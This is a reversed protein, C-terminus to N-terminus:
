KSKHFLISNTNSWLIILNQLTKASPTNRQLIVSDSERFQSLDEHFRFCIVDFVLHPLTLTKAVHFDCSGRLGVMKWAWHKLAFFSQIIMHLLSLIMQPQLLSLLQDKLKYIVIQSSLFFLWDEKLWGCQQSDIFMNEEM